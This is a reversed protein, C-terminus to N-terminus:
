NKPTSEKNTKDVAGLEDSKLIAVDLLEHSFDKMQDAVKNALCLFEILKERDGTQGHLLKFIDDVSGVKEKLDYALMYAFQELKRRQDIEYQMELRNLADNIAITLTEPSLRDKVLYGQAGINLADVVLQVDDFGTVMVVPLVPHTKKWEKLIEIGNTDPLMYDLLVLDPKHTKFQEHAELGMSAEVLVCDAYKTKQLSTTIQMRTVKSDDVILFKM